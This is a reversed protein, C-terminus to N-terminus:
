LDSTKTAKMIRNYTTYVQKQTFACSTGNKSIKNNAIEPNFERVLEINFYKRPDGAYHPEKVIFYDTKVLEKITRLDVSEKPKGIIKFLYKIRNQHYFSIYNAPKFYRYPQCLYVGYKLAVDEGWSGGVIIVRQDKDEDYDSIVDKDYDSVIGTSSDKQKRSLVLHKVLLIFQKILYALLESALGEAVFEALKGIVTEWSMWEVMYHQLLMPKVTDPTLYILYRCQASNTLAMHGKLQTESIANPVIKSEIFINYKSDCSIEGDPNSQKQYSQPIVNIENSPIDFHDGFLREVVMQGGVQIVHLLAATVRDEPKKYEGFISQSSISKNNM